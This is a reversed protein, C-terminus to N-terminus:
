PQAPAAPRRRRSRAARWVLAGLVVGLVGMGVLALPANAEYGCRLQRYLPRFTNKARDLLSGPATKFNGEATITTQGAADTAALQFYYTTNPRLGELTLAHTQALTEEVGVAAVPLKGSGQGPMRWDIKGPASKIWVQGSTPRDTEWTVTVATDTAATEVGTVVPDDNGQPIVFANEAPARGADSEGDLVLTDAPTAPQAGMDALMNYTIQQLRPDPDYVDLGWSWLITGSAFVMAGSRAVYRTTHAVAEGLTYTRGADSLISGYTPSAALITLGDPTHGNDVVADWEWGVVWHGVDAYAGPPMDQLGTHRYLRDQAMEATVRLPFFVSDNDGVYQVGLLANEPQNAGEPDRFTGTPHGSPDPPGSETTKYTVIVSDPQGTWPDPELRIRWYGTNASFFGLHVGADRAATMADRMPQSWYEDHGVSLFIRHDLLENHAGPQGARHVDLNTVYSVEYGQAELWRVMPYDSFFYTNGYVIEPFAYPRALSVKVARPAEAATPCYSSNFNYVSKGGYGNYAQYTTVSMQVLIDAAREDDRVVFLIYNEGGTDHRVLKALYVGSVWDAPVNLRYSSSWNSCSILGTARDTRCAPQARGPLDRITQILRGGAGGYYGSRFILLDYRSAQTNIFFDIAEGLNVSTASAFGEIDGYYNKIEWESSGPQCNEAVIPNAPSACGAARSDLTPQFAEGPREGVRAEAASQPGSAVLAATLLAALWLRSAAFLRREFPRLTMWGERNQLDLHECWSALSLNRSLGGLAREDV